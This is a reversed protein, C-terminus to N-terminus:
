QYCEVLSHVLHHKKKLKKESGFIVKKTAYFCSVM